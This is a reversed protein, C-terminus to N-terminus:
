RFPQLGPGPKSSTKEGRPFLFGLMTRGVQQQERTVLDTDSEKAMEHVTARWAGRDM